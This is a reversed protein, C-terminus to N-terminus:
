CCTAGSVVFPERLCFYMFGVDVGHKLQADPCATPLAVTAM